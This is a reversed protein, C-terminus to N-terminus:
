EEIKRGFKDTEAGILRRLDEFAEKRGREYASNLLSCIKWPPLGREVEDKPVLTTKWTPDGYLATKIDCPDYGHKSEEINYTYETQRKAM